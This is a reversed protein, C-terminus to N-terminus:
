SLIEASEKIVILYDDCTSDLGPRCKRLYNSNEISIPNCLHDPNVTEAYVAVITQAGAKGLRDACERRLGYDSSVIRGGGSAGHTSSYEASAVNPLDIVMITTDDNFRPLSFMNHRLRVTPDKHFLAEYVQKAVNPRVEDVGFVYIGIPRPVHNLLYEAIVDSTSARSIIWNGM